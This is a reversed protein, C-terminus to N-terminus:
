EEPEWAPLQDFLRRDGGLKLADVPVRDYLALFLEGATGRLSADAAPATDPTTLRAARAGDASLTVRWSRGEAAHYDVAASREDTLRLLDSSDPTAPTTEM